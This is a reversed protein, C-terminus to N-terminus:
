SEPVGLVLGNRKVFCVHGGGLRDCNSKDCLLVSLLALRPCLGAGVIGFEARNAAGCMQHLVDKGPDRGCWGCSWNAGHEGVEGGRAVLAEGVGVEKM